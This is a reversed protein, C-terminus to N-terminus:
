CNGCCVFVGAGMAVRIAMERQRAVARALQLNAVNACAMLLVFGVTGLLLLMSLRLKGTVQDSLPRM